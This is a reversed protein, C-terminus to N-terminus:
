MPQAQIEKPLLLNIVFQPIQRSTKVTLSFNAKGEVLGRYKMFMKFDTSLLTVGFIKMSAHHEAVEMEQGLVIKERNGNVDLILEDGYSLAMMKVNGVTVPEGDPFWVNYTVTYPYTSGPIPDGFEVDLTFAAAVALLLLLGFVGLVAKKKGSMKKPEPAPPSPPSVTSQEVPGPRNPQVSDAPPVTGDAADNPVHEETM